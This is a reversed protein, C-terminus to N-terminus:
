PSVKLLASKAASADGGCDDPAVRLELDVVNRGVREAAEEVLAVLEDGSTRRHNTVALLCGEESLLGIAMELLKPYDREISFVNKGMSAFSPPDLVIWDFREDKRVARSLWKVADEKLLRHQERSFGHLDLNKRSRELARASLDISLTRAASGLAAAVTFAGTYSFLNLVSQDRSSERLLARNDRQDLFLGTSLGEGLRVLTRQEFEHVELEPPAAQGAIPEPPALEETSLKRLDGRRHLKLYVGRVHELLAQALRSAHPRHEDEYLCLTAFEGFVEVTVGPIDGVETDLLRYADTHHRLEECSEFASALAAKLKPGEPITVGFSSIV